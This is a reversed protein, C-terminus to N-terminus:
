YRTMYYYNEARFRWPKMLCLLHPTLPFPFVSCKTKIRGVGEDRECCSPRLASLVLIFIAQVTCAVYIARRGCELIM